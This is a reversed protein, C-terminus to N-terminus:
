RAPTSATTAPQVDLLLDAHRTPLHGFYRPLAATGPGRGRAAFRQGDSLVAPWRGVGARAAARPPLGRPARQRRHAHGRPLQEWAWELQQYSFESARAMGTLGLNTAQALIVAYLVAPM